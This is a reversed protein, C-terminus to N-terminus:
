PLTQTKYVMSTFYKNTNGTVMGLVVSDCFGPCNPSWVQVPPFEHALVNDCSMLLIIFQAIVTPQVCVKPYAILCLNLFPIKGVALLLKFLCPDKDFM